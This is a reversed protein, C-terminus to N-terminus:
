EKKVLVGFLETLWITEAFCFADDHVQTEHGALLYIHNTQIQFYHAASFHLRTHLATKQEFRKANLSWRPRTHLLFVKWCRSILFIRNLLNAIRRQKSVISMIDNVQRVLWRDVNYREKRNVAGRNGFCVQVLQPILCTFLEKNFVVERIAFWWRHQTNGKSAQCGTTAWVWNSAGKRFCERDFGVSIPAISM